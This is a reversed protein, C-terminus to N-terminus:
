EFYTEISQGFVEEMRRLLERCDAELEPQEDEMVECLFPVADPLVSLYSEGRSEM